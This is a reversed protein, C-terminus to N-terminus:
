HSDRLGLAFPLLREKQATKLGPMEEELFQLHEENRHVPAVYFCGPYSLLKNKSFSSRLETDGVNVKAATPSSPHMKLCKELELKGIWDKRHMNKFFAVTLRQGFELAPNKSIEAFSERRPPMM